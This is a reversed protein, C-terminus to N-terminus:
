GCGEVVLELRSGRGGEGFEGNESGGGGSKLTGMVAEDKPRTRGDM